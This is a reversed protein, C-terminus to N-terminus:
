AIRAAHSGGSWRGTSRESDFLFAFTHPTHVIRPTGARRAATRGLAGAKSSHTHVVDPHWARIRAEIERAHRLDLLPRVSRVMPIETVECGEDALAALDERFDPARLASAVVHVAEGRQVLARSVDVLHRRTGGITSEMVHMVRM